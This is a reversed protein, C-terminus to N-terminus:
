KMLVCKRMQVFEGAQMRIIYTGSPFDGADWTIQYSGANQMSDILEAVKQGYINYVAIRVHANEPIDYILRTEPNFPNPFNQMLKFDKPISEGDQSEGVNTSRSITIQYDEVEGDPAPGFHDLGAQTSLRFRAYTSVPLTDQVLDFSMSYEGAGLFVDILIHDSAEQWSGDAGFDVWGNLYGGGNVKVRITNTVGLYLTDIGDIGDEDDLNNLDDLIALSGQLGDVEADVADGLYVQYDVLHSAGNSTAMTRYNMAGFPVDDPADGWDMDPEYVTIYATKTEHGEYYPGDWITLTVDYTGPTYYWVTVETGDQTEPIGGPCTWARRFWSYFGTSQDTLVVPLPAYGETPEGSFDVTQALTAQELAFWSCFLLLAAMTKKFNELYCTNVM